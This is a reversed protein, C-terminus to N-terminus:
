LFRNKWKPHPLMCTETKGFFRYRHRAIIDYVANRWAAPIIIFGYLIKWGGGLTRAIRLAADSKQYAINKEILIFSDFHHLPLQLQQLYHQGTASQLSAFVFKGQRDHRLIFQVVGNCLNCVGDFLLLHAPPAPAFDPPATNETNFQM